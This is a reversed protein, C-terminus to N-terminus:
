SSYRYLLSVRGAAHFAAALKWGTVIDSGEYINVTTHLRSSSSKDLGPPTLAAEMVNNGNLHTRQSSM